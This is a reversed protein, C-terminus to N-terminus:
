ISVPVRMGSTSGGAPLATYAKSGDILQPPPPTKPVSNLHSHIVPKIAQISDPGPAKGPKCRSLQWRVNEVTFPVPHAPEPIPLTELLARCEESCNTTDFRAYFINLDPAHCPHHPAGTIALAELPTQLPISPLHLQTVLDADIFNGDTSSDVLVSVVLILGNVSSSRNFSPLCIIRSLNIVGRLASRALGPRDPAPQQRSFGDTGTLNNKRIGEWQGPPVEITRSTGVTTPNPPNQLAEM